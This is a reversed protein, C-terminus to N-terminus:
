LYSVTGGWIMAVLALTIYSRIHSQNVSPTTNM